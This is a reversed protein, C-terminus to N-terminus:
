QAQTCKNLRVVVQTDCLKDPGFQAEILQLPRGGWRSRNVRSNSWKELAFVLQSLSLGAGPYEEM